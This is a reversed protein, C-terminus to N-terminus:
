NRLEHNANWFSFFIFLFKLSKSLIKNHKEKEMKITIFTRRIEDWKLSYMNCMAERKRWISMSLLSICFPLQSHPFHLSTVFINLRRWYYYYNSRVTKHANMNLTLLLLLFFIYYLTLFFHIWYRAKTTLSLFSNVTWLVYWFQEYM